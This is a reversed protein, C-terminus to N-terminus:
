LTFGQDRDMENQDRVQLPVVGGCLLDCARDHISDDKHCDNGQHCEHKNEQELVPYTIRTEEIGATAKKSM